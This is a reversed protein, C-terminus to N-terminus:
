IIPRIYKVRKLSDFKTPLTFAAIFPILKGLSQSLEEPDDKKQCLWGVSVGTLSFCGSERVFTQSLQRELMVLVALVYRLIWIALLEGDTFWDDMM